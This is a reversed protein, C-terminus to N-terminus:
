GRLKRRRSALLGFTGLGLLAISAPEPLEGRTRAALLNELFRGNDYIGQWTPSEDWINQDTVVFISGAGINQLAMMISAGGNYQEEGYMLAVASGSISLPAFAAYHFSNVGATLPHAAIQGDGVSATRFGSDVINNNILITSGLYALAANIRLNQGPGFSGHEGLFAIRGGGALFAAMANLEAATYGDAPQTAWLLNVGTLDVTDLQGGSITSSHGALGNYFSNVTNKSFGSLEEGWVKVVGAHAAASALLLASLFLKVVSIKKM